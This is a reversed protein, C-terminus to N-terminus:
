SPINEPYDKNTFLLPLGLMPLSLLWLDLNHGLFWAYWDSWLYNGGFFIWSLYEWLFYLGLVTIMVGAIKLNLKAVPKARISSVTFGISFISLALLGFVTLVFSVTNVPYNTVSSWGRFSVISFWLSMNTLWFVFLLLTATILSWKINTSPKNPNLKFALILLVIPFAVSEVFNPLAGSMVSVLVNAISMHFPSIILSRIEVAATAVLGVWYIAELVLIAKLINFIRNISPTGKVMYYIVSSIAIIGAIFRPVIGVFAVVDTIYVDFRAAASLNTFRNWEGVWALNFLSHANFLFYALAVILLGIKLPTVKQLTM